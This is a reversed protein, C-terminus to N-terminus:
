RQSLLSLVTRLADEERSEFRKVFVAIDAASAASITIL